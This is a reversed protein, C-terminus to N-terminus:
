HPEPPFAATLLTHLLSRAIGKHGWSGGSGPCGAICVSCCLLSPRREWCCVQSSCPPGPLCPLTGNELMVVLEPFMSCVPVASPMGTCGAMFEASCLQPSLGAETVALALQPSGTPSGMCEGCTEKCVFHLSM